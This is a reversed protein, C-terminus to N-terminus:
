EPSSEEGFTDHFRALADEGSFREDANADGSTSLGPGAGFLYDVLQDVDGAAIVADGNVDGRKEDSFGVHAIEAANASGYLAIIEDTSDADANAIMMRQMSGPSTWEPEGTAGDFVTIGGWFGVAIEKAPDADLQAIVVSLADYYGVPIRREEVGSLADMVLSRAM